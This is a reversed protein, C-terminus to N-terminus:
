LAGEARLFREAVRELCLEAPPLLAEADAGLEQLRRRLRAHDMATHRPRPERFFSAEDLRQERVPPLEPLAGLEVARRLAVQACGHWGLPSGGSCLHFIGCSREGEPEALLALVAGAISRADTPLSFKDAIAALEQGALARRLMSEVFSPRRPNGCIWSVRLVLAEPLAELVELEGERKSEAYVSLPRCKAGEDKLGARRGDLVYDTSLHVFRAGTHRCALAMAAPAMANVAHATLPDALCDELGSVAAANVVADAGCRLVADSLGQLARLDCQEHSPALVAHGAARAAEALVQGSRGSAGFLLIRM